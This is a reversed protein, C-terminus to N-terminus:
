GSACAADWRQAILTALQEANRLHAAHTAHHLEVTNIAPNVKRIAASLARYYEPAPTDGHAYTAPVRLEALDFPAAASQVTALDILLAPGDLRRSERQVDSLRDWAADSMVRRFFLEAEVRADDSLPPRPRDRRLVWPLPSEFNM